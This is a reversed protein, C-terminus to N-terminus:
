AFEKVRQELRKALARLAGALDALGHRDQVGDSLDSIRGLYRVYRERFLDEDAAAPQSKAAGGATKVVRYAEWFSPRKHGLAYAKACALFRSVSAQSTGFEGAIREQTWGKGSLAQYDDAVDWSSKNSAKIAAKCHAVIQAETREAQCVIAPVPGNAIRSM